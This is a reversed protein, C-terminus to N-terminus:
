GTQVCARGGDQAYYGKFINCIYCTDSKISQVSLCGPITSSVCSGQEINVQFGPICEACNGQIGGNVCNQAMKQNPDCFTGDKSVMMGKCMACGEFPEFDATFAFLCNTIPLISCKRTNIDIAYGEKCIECQAVGEPSMTHVRCNDRTPKALNCLSNVNEFGDCFYCGSDNNCGACKPGCINNATRQALVYSLLLLLYTLNLLTLKSFM